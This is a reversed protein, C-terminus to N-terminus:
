VRDYIWLYGCKCKSSFPKYYHGGSDVCINNRGKWCEINFCAPITSKIGYEVDYKGTWHEQCKQGCEECYPGHSYSVKYHSM